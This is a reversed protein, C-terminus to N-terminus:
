KRADGQIALEAQVAIRKYDIGPPWCTLLIIISKSGTISVIPIEQGKALFFKKTVEYTYEKGDGLVQIQDGARLSNLDSFVWDYRIKPWGPPASHGLIVTTGESGIPVSDPYAVVGQKLLRQLYEESSNEGFLIPATIGLKPISLSYSPLSPTATPEAESATPVLNVQPVQFSQTIERLLRTKAAYMLEGYITKYNFVQKITQWQFLILAGLFLFIFFQAFGMIRAGAKLIPSLSFSM